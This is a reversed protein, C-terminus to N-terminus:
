LRGVRSLVLLRPETMDAMAFRVGERGFGSAKVGGYAMSDVRFSPIDNIVVGGYELENYAYWAHDLNKTFVGAQLGFESANAAAVAGKFDSFRELVAVPGFVEQCSVRMTPAVDELYAASIVSRERRGGCLLRAGGAVAENIWTEVRVADQETILPGLFTEENRPDGAKLKVAREVLAAKLADYIREHAIVRQVSICSQGSQYFAGVTIRDAAYAVDADADVICPANGGLELTVRKRGAKSKM